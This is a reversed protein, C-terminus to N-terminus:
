SFSDGFPNFAHLMEKEKRKTERHEESVVATFINLGLQPPYPNRTEAINRNLYILADVLDLHGTKEGRVFSKRREDWMGVKLQYILNVCRPNILIRNNTFRLRLENIASLKDDKRTPAVYYDHETQMDHLQQLENDGVRLYVPRNDWLEKEKNKCMEVIEKTNKARVFVEDQIVLTAKLFDYYGFLFATNDNFGFDAGVYSDFCDPVGVEKVHNDVKFEPIVLAEEDAVPELYLERRVATSQRGGMEEIFSEKQAQTIHNPVDFDRAIFRKDRIAVQKRDYWVHGLDRPPTGMEILEGNTTLLTPRLVENMVYDVDIWSGLEDAVIENATVGRVSEARDDNVGGLYIRSGTTPFEYFSDTRYFKPRFEHPATQCIKEVEPIVIKRAQDKYPELWLVRNGKTLLCDEFEKILVTTTKGFRRTAEFFPNRTERIFEYVEQQFDYLYWFLIGNKWFNESSSIAM